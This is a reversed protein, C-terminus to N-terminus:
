SSSARRASSSSRTDWDRREEAGAVAADTIWVNGNPEVFMGHPWSILGAGFSRLVNGDPDLLLVPDLDSDV